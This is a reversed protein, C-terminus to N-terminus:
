RAHETTSSLFTDLTGYYAEARALPATHGIGEMLHIHAQPYMERMRTRAEEPTAPDLEAMIILMENPWDPITDVATNFYTHFDAIRQFSNLFGRRTMQHDIVQNMYASMLATDPHLNSGLLGLLTKKILARQAFLPLWKMWRLAKVIGAGSKDNPPGGLAVVLRAVRRPHRRAFAQAMFAGGSGGMVHARDVNEADLLRAFGDTLAAMSAIDFPYSPVIVRYRARNEGSSFHLITRWGSEATGLAGPLALLAQKGEGAVVYQWQVGDIEIQKYPHTRRFEFFERVVEGPVNKYLRAIKPNM